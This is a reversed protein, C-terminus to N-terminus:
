SRFTKESEYYKSKNTQCKPDEKNCADQVEKKIHNNCGSAMVPFGNTTTFGCLCFFAVYLVFKRM